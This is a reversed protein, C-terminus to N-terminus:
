LARIAVFVVSTKAGMQELRIRDIFKTVLAMGLFSTREHPGMRRDVLITQRAMNGMATIVVFQQCTANGLNAATAVIRRAM